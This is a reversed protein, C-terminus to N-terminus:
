RMLASAAMLRLPGQRALLGRPDNTLVTDWRGHRTRQVAYACLQSTPTRVDLAAALLRNEAISLCRVAEPAADVLTRACWAAGAREKADWQEHDQRVLLASFLHVRIMKVVFATRYRQPLRTFWAQTVLRTSAELEDRIPRATFTVRVQADQGVVYAPDHRAFAIPEGSTWLRTTFGIDEGTAVGADFRLDLRELVARRVLGLPATRYALRDRAADLGLVRRPRTPPTRVVGGGQYEVRAMVAAAGSDDALRVWAAVAGPMTFDDSGMVGVYAATAGELGANFPGAPSPIGDHHEILDVRPLCAAPIAQAVADAELGHCVVIVRTDPPADHLVSAVTRGVPRDMRHVAVVVDVSSPARNM